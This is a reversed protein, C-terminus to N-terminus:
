RNADEVPVDPIPTVPMRHLVEFIQRAIPAAIDGGFGGEEVM